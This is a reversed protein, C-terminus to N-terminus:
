TLKNVLKILNDNLKTLIDAINEGSRNLLYNDLITDNDSDSDYESNDSSNDIDTDNLKNNFHDIIASFNESEIVSEIESNKELLNEM